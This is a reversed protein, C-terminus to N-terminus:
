SGDFAEIQCLFVRRKFIHKNKKLLIVANEGIVPTDFLLSKLSFKLKLTDSNLPREM